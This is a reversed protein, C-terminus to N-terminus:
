QSEQAIADKIEQDSADPFRAKLEAFRDAPPPKVPENLQSKKGQDLPNGVNTGTVEAFQAQLLKNQGILAARERLLAQKGQEDMTFNKGLSSDIEKIRSSRQRIAEGLNKARDQLSLGSEEKARDAILSAYNDQKKRETRVREGELEARTQKYLLDAQLMRDKLTPDAGELAQVQLELQRAQAEKYRRFASGPKANEIVDQLEYRKLLIEMPDIQQAMQLRHAASANSIRQAEQDLPFAAAEREARAQASAADIARARMEPSTMADRLSNGAQAVQYGAGTGVPAASTPNATIPQDLSMVNGYTMRAGPNAGSMMEAQMQLENSQAKLTKVRAQALNLETQKRAFESSELQNGTMTNAAGALKESVGGPPAIAGAIQTLFHRGEPTGFMKGTFGSVGSMVRQGFGPSPTVGVTPAAAANQGATIQAGAMMPNAAPAAAPPPPIPMPPKLMNAGAAPAAAAGAGQAGFFATVMSPDFIM